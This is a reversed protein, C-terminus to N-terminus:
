EITYEKYGEDKRPSTASEPGPVGGSVPGPGGQGFPPNASGPSTNAGPTGASHAGHKVSSTKQRIMECVFSMDVCPNREDRVRFRFGIFMLALASLFLFMWYPLLLLLILVPVGFVTRGDCEAFVRVDFGKQLIEAFAQWGTRPMRGAGKDRQGRAQEFDVIADLLDGGHKDLFFRAEEYSSGTRRRFEDIRDIEAM